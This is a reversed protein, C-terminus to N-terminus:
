GAPLYASPDLAKTGKRVEFHLQPAGVIGTSGVRAIAQGRKVTDGRKVLLAQNHAYATMWGGAHKILILNGYGRLENGAYAVVGSDAAEVPTGAPAAINIGDNHAGSAATGYRGVIKGKVPWIFGGGRPPPPPLTEPGAQQQPPQQQTAEDQPKEPPPGPPAAHQPTPKAGPPRPVAAVEEPAGTAGPPLVLVQGPKVAFPRTLENMRALSFVEVGETDAISYLTEGPKVVHRRKQPIVLITGPALRYPPELKNADIIDRVPAGTRRSVDYVTEDPAVKVRGGPVLRPNPAADEQTQPAAAPVPPAAAARGPPPGGLPEGHVTVPAPGGQREGCAALAFALALCLSALRRGTM